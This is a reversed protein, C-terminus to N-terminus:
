AFKKPPSYLLTDISEVFSFQLLTFHILLGSPASDIDTDFKNQLIQLNSSNNEEEPFDVNKVDIHSNDENGEEDEDEDEDENEDSVEDEKKFQINDEIQEHYQKPSLSIMELSQSQETFILSEEKECMDEKNEM